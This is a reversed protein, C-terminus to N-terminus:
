MLVDTEHIEHIEGGKVENWRWGMNPLDVQGLYSIVRDLQSNTWCGLWLCIQVEKQQVRFERWISLSMDSTFSYLMIFCRQRSSNQLRLHLNHVLVHSVEEGHARRSLWGLLLNWPQANKQHALRSAALLVLLLIFSQWLAVKSSKTYRISVDWWNLAIWDHESNGTFFEHKM